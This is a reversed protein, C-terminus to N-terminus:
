IKKYVFYEGLVGLHASGKVAGAENSRICTYIGADTARVAAILLDGTELAQVRGSLEVPQDDTLALWM